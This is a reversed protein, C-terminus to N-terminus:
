SVFNIKFKNKFLNQMRYGRPKDDALNNQDKTNKKEISFIEEFIPFTNNM